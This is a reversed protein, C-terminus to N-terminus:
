KNYYFFVIACGPAGFEGNTGKDANEGRGGKGGEGYFLQRIPNVNTTLLQTQLSTMSIVNTNVISSYQPVGGDGGFPGNTGTNGIVGPNGSYSYIANTSVVSAALGAPGGGTVGGRGRLGGNVSYTIGSVTISSGTADGADVGNESSSFLRRFGPGDNQSFASFGYIGGYGVSISYPAATLYYASIGGSGGGGGGFGTGLTGGGGGGGGGGGVLIVLMHTAGPLPVGSYTATTGITYNSATNANGPYFLYPPCLYNNSLLGNSFATIRMKPDNDFTSENTVGLYFKKLYKTTKTGFADIYNTLTVNYTDSAHPAALCYYLPQNKYLFTDTSYGYIIGKQDFMSAAVNDGLTSMCISNFGVYLSSSLILIKWTNGFDASTYISNRPFPAGVSDHCAALIKGSGNCRISTWIVTGNEVGREIWTNGYDSSTWINGNQATAALRDGLSNSCISVWTRSVTTKEVWTNGSDSSTWINGNLVVAALRDGVSNICISQWFRSATTRVTWTTGNSNISNYINGGNVVAALVTFTSNCCISWYNVAPATAQQQWSNGYNTSTWIKIFNGSFNGGCVAIKDGASSMCIAQLPTTVLPTKLWTMGYNSSTYVSNQECTAFFKGSADCCIGLARLAATTTVDAQNFTYSM